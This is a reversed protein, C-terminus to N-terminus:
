YSSKNQVITNHILLIGLAIFNINYHNSYYCFYNTSHNKTPTYYMSKRLGHHHLLLTHLYRITNQTRNVPGFIHKQCKINEINVIYRRTLLFLTGTKYFTQLSFITVNHCFLLTVYLILCLIM